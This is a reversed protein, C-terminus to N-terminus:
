VRAQYDFGNGSRSFIRLKDIFIGLDFWTQIKEKELLEILANTKQMRAGIPLSQTTRLCEM